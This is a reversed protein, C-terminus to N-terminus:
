SGLITDADACEPDVGYAFSITGVARREYLREEIYERSRLEGRGIGPCFRSEGKWATASDMISAWFPYTSCQVPRDEYVACGDNTWFVCDYEKKGKNGERVNERLSLAMGTGSDVLICYDRFFSKFDLGLRSLLKGLDRKSLFVFGSDGRCCSSCRECGFFLGSAYFPEGM